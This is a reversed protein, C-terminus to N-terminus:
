SGGIMESMRISSSWAPRTTSGDTASPM